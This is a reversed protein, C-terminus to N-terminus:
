QVLEAAYVFEFGEAELLPMNKELAQLTVPDDHGIGIAWGKKKAAEKLRSIQRENYEIEKKNDIFISRANAPVGAQRAAPIAVSGPSTLSDIFFLNKQKLENLVIDMIRKNETALSGEHNNVGKFYPINQILKEVIYKVEGESMGAKVTMKELPMKKKPEMPLHLMVAKKDKHAIEAAERSHALGPLVSITFPYKIRDLYQFNGDHYGWDDLIVAIKPKSNRVLRIKCAIDEGSRIEVVAETIKGNNIESCQATVGKKAAAFRMFIGKIDDASFRLPLRAMYDNTEENQQIFLLPDILVRDILLKEAERGTVKIQQEQEIVGPVYIKQYYLYGAAGIILALVLLAPLINNKKSM